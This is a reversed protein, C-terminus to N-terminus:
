YIAHQKMNYIYIIVNHFLINNVTQKYTFPNRELVTYFNYEQMQTIHIKYLKTVQINQCCAECPLFCVNHTWILNEFNDETEKRGDLSNSAIAVLSMRLSAVCTLLLITIERNWKWTHLNLVQNESAQTRRPKEQEHRHQTVSVFCSSSTYAFTAGRSNFPSATSLLSQQKLINLLFLTQTAKQLVATNYDHTM